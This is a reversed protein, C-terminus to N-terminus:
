TRVFPVNELIIPPVNSELFTLIDGDLIGLKFQETLGPAADKYDKQPVNAELHHM